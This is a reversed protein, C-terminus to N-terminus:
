NNLEFELMSQVALEDENTMIFDDLCSFNNFDDDIADDNTNNLSLTSNHTNLNAASAAATTTTTTSLYNDNIFQSNTADISYSLDYQNNLFDNDLDNYNIFDDNFKLETAEEALQNASASNNNTTAVCENKILKLKLKIRDNSNINNNSSNSNVNEVEVKFHKRDFTEKEEDDDNNDDSYENDVDEDDEDEDVEEEEYEDENHPININDEPETACESLNGDFQQSATEIEHNFRHIFSHKKTSSFSKLDDDDDYEDNEINNEKDLSSEDEGTIDVYDKTHDGDYLDKNIRKYRALKRKFKEIDEMKVVKKSLKEEEFEKKADSLYLKLLMTEESAM